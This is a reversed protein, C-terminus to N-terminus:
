KKAIALLALAIAALLCIETFQLFNASDLGNPLIPLPRLQMKAVLALVFSIGAVLLVVVAIKKM